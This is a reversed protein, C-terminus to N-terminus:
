LSCTLTQANGLKEQIGWKGETGVHTSQLAKCWVFDPKVFLAVIFRLLAKILSRVAGGCLLMLYFIFFGSTQLWKSIVQKGFIYM